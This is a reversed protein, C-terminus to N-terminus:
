SPQAYEPAVYSVLNSGLERDLEEPSGSFSLPTALAGNEDRADILIGNADVENWGSLFFVDDYGHARWPPAYTRCVWNRSISQSVRVTM